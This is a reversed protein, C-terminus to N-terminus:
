KVLAAVAVALLYLLTELVRDVQMAKIQRPLAAQAMALELAVVEVALAELAAM